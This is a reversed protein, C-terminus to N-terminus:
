SKPASLQFLMQWAMLKVGPVKLLLADAAATIKRVADGFASEPLVLGAISLLYFYEVEVTDFYKEAIKLERNTLIHDAEWETRLKPTLKRYANIFPNYGLAEAALIRGGPRLVRALEPYARNVDLHHLVGSCIIVDFSDNPFELAEADMVAFTSRDGLGAAKLRAAATSVSDSSIDIGTVTAGAEAMALSMAGLGCCFDLADADPAYLAIFEDMRDIHAKAYRYFRKNPYKALFDEDSMANRDRERQDHFEAEDLKRDEVESMNAGELHAEGM